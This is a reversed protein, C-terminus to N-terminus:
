RQPVPLRISQRHHFVDRPDWAAKVAQLRAYNGKYYLAHWPIGSANWTPDSLDADAYNIFCGDNVDTFGPVGGTTAYVDRYFERIWNLHAADEAPDTWFSIYHLKLVSDRQPVVTASPSVTNLQGGYSTIMVLSM